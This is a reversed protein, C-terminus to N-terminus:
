GIGGGTDLLNTGMWMYTFHLVVALVALVVAAILIRVPLPGPLATFARRIM